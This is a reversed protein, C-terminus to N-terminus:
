QNWINKPAVDQYGITGLYLHFAGVGTGILLVMPLVLVDVLMVKLKLFLTYFSFFSNVNLNM